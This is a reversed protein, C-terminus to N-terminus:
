AMEPYEATLWFMVAAVKELYLEELKSCGSVLDQVCPERVATHSDYSLVAHVQSDYLYCSRFALAGWFLPV